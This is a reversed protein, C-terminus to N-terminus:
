KGYLFEIKIREDMLERYEGEKCMSIKIEGKKKKRGEKREKKRKREKERERKGKRKKRKREKKKKKGGEDKREKRGKQQLGHCPFSGLWQIM